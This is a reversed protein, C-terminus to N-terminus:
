TFSAVNKIASFILNPVFNTGYESLEDFIFMFDRQFTKSVKGVDSSIQM